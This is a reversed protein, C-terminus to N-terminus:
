FQTLETLSHQRIYPYWGDCITTKWTSNNSNFHNCIFIYTKGYLYRSKSMCEQSICIFRIAVFVCPTAKSIHLWVGNWEKCLIERQVWDDAIAGHVISVTLTSHAQLGSSRAPTGVQQSQVVPSSTTTMNILPM